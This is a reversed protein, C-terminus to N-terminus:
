IEPLGMVMKSMISFSKYHLHTLRRHWLDRPNITNHVLNTESDGKLKYLGGEQVRIVIADNFSEGKPWMLVEGDVFLIIFGKEGLASISLLNKRLGPVLLVDKVKMLKSSDLKFSAEGVGKIPYQYDDGLKVKHLSDKKILNSLSNPYGTMHKSAGSDILWTDSGHTVTGSLSSILLNPEGDSEGELDKSRILDNEELIYRWAQYDNSGELKGNIRFSTTM